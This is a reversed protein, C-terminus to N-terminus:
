KEGVDKEEVMSSFAMYLGALGELAEIAEEWSFEVGNEEKFYEICREILEKSFQTM